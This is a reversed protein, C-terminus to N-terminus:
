CQTSMNTHFDSVTIAARLSAKMGALLNPRIACQQLVNKQPHIRRCRLCAQSPIEGPRAATQILSGASREFHM